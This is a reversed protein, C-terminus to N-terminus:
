RPSPTAALPSLVTDFSRIIEDCKEVGVSGRLLYRSIGQSEVWDLEDYHAM